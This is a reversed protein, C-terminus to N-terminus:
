APARERDFQARLERKLIKGTGGKPLADVFRVRKPLKFGALIGRCHEILEDETVSVGQRLVVLAAPIEGWKPDTVAIVACELVAPHEYVAKEVEISSINEGGSIIIDKKRDVIHLYGLEDIVGMDGTHFWGDVIARATEDPRKWYGKMVTNGRACVEGASVGDHPLVTGSEDLVEVTVGPIPLGASSRLRLSLAPDPPLGRKLVAVTLVPTTESLGYGGNIQCGPLRADLAAILSPPTAAGGLMIMRLSSLDRSRITSANLLAVAMTPVLLACTVREREITELVQDPDFRPLMVHGGGLMTVIHPTGWGNVHFLPISHLQVDADTVKNVTAVAIAHTTLNRHTLMVGKPQATTGSTYFLEAVDDEAVEPRRYEASAKAIMEEYDLGDLPCSASPDGGMLVIRQLDKLQDRVPALLGALARDVIVTSANADALIYAIDPPTLRINIPLLIAGMNPVAYYLELLRHCNFSLCAVVEGRATGARALGASLRDVRRGVQRYTLRERGCVVGVAHGYLSSARDLLASVVLPTDM